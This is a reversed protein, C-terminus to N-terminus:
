PRRGPAAGGIREVLESARRSVVTSLGKEGIGCLLGILVAKTGSDVFHTDFKGITIVVVGLTFLLGITLTLGAVFLLRIGPDLRDEELVALEFFRLEVRRISFSLWTGIASGTILLFFNRFYFIVWDHPVEIRVITYILGAVTAISISPVLLRRIYGNKVNAGERYEVERHLGLLADQAVSVLGSELGVRALALLKRFYEEFKKQTNQRWWHYWKPDYQPFLIQLVTLTSEIQIRLANQDDPINSIKDDISFVLDRPNDKHPYGLFAGARGDQDRQDGIIQSEPRDLPTQQRLLHDQVEQWGKSEDIQHRAEDGRMSFAGARGDQDRQDGIIQSEPRDPPTQQRLHDQVEQWVKSV